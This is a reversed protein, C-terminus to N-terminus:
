LDWWFSFFLSSSHAKSEKCRRGNQVPLLQNAFPLGQSSPMAVGMEPLAGGRM